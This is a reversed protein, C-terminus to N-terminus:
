EVVIKRSSEWLGHINCYSLAHITGSQKLTITSTVSPETLAPGENAGKAAAAHANFESNALQYTFKDGEPKFFLQIWEIHHETTNPHAIEKGVTATVTVKEGSKVREACEIVPAHKENKWDAAQIQDGIKEIGNM